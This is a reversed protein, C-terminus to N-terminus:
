VLAHRWRGVCRGSLEDTKLLGHYCEIAANTTPICAPDGEYGHLYCARIWRVYLAESGYYTEFYAVFAPYMSRWADCFKKVKTKAEAAEQSRRFPADFARVVWGPSPGGVPPSPGGVYCRVPLRVLKALGDMVLDVDDAAVGKEKAQQAWAKKLHWDCYVIRARPFKEAPVQGVGLVYAGGPGNVGRGWMCENIAKVETVSVDILIHSPCFRQVAEFHEKVWTGAVRPPGAAEYPTYGFPLEGEACGLIMGFADMWDRVNDADGYKSLLWAVPLHKGYANIVVITHLM